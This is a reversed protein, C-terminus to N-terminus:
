NATTVNKIIKINSNTNQLHLKISCHLLTGPHQLKPECVEQRRCGEWRRLIPEIVLKGTRTDLRDMGWGAVVPM